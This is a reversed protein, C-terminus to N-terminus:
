DDKNEKEGFFSKKVVIAIWYIMLSFMAVNHLILTFMFLFTLFIGAELEQIKGKKFVIDGRITNEIILISVIVGVVGLISGSLIAGLLFVLSFALRIKECKTSFLEKINELM